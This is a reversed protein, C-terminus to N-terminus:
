KGFLIATSGSGLAQFKAITLIGSWVQNEPIQKSVRFEIFGESVSIIQIDTGPIRGVTTHNAGVHGAFDVLRLLEPDYSVTFVSEASVDINDAAIVIEFETNSQARVTVQSRLSAPGRQTTVTLVDSWEGVNESSYARVSFAYQTGPELGTIVAESGLLSIVEDGFQVEYSVAGPVVNWALAVSSNTRNIYRLGTVAEFPEQSTRVRIEHSKASIGSDNRAQVTIIYEKNASLNGITISNTPSIISEENYSILYELAGEVPSWSLSISNETRGTNIFNIPSDIIVNEDSEATSVTISAWEGFATGSVARVGFTYETDPALKDFSVENEAANLIQENFSIEYHDIDAVENWRFSLSHSTQESLILGVIDGPTQAPPASQTRFYPYSSGEDIAWINDFDWGVYTAQQMMQATTRAQAAPTNVGAIESDFFTNSHIDSINATLAYKNNSPINLESASYSNEVRIYGNLVGSYPSYATGTFGGVGLDAIFGDTATIKGVSFSNEIISDDPILCGIFGGVGARGTVEGSFSSANLKINGSVYSIIGGAGLGSATLTVSSHVNSMEVNSLTGSRGVIGGVYGRAKINGSVRINEIFVAASGDEISGVLAGVTSSAGVIDVNELTINKITSSGINGFLGLGGGTSNITLNSITYGGGDLVGRFPAASTGIPVHNIGAMDIDNGLVFHASLNNRMQNIHEPTTIVFPNEATGNGGSFAMVEIKVVLLLVTLTFLSAIIKVKARM